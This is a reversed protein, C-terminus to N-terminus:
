QVGLRATLGVIYDKSAVASSGEPTGESESLKGLLTTVEARARTYAMDWAAADAASNVAEKVGQLFSESGLALKLQQEVLEDLSLGLSPLDLKLGGIQKITGTGPSAPEPVPSMEFTRVGHLETVGDARKQKSEFSFGHSYGLAKGGVRVHELFADGDPTRLVEVEGIILDGDRRGEGYGVPPQVEQVLGLQKALTMSNHLWSSARIAKISHSASVIIERERDVVDVRGIVAKVTRDKVVPAEDIEVSKFGYDM